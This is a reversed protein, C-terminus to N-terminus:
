ICIHSANCHKGNVSYHKGTFFDLNYPLQGYRPLLDIKTLVSIHPLALRMMSSAVLLVASVFVSPDTCYYSDILHVSCLRCDSHKSLFQLLTQIYAYHTFLEVQGPLDILLYCPPLRDLKEGLWALDSVLQQMCHVIGGNPGLCLDDMVKELSLYERVDIAATYPVSDNAFDLNIIECSRGISHMFMQMGQCYTTKGEIYM